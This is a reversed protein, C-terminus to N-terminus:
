WWFIARDRLFSLVRLVCAVRDMADTRLELDPSPPEEYPAQVGTFGALRGARAERYHGKVDRRECEGLPCHVWVEAFREEGVIWRARTRMAQLPSVVACLVIVEVEVLLKAVEAVRRCHELRDEICYGLDKSLTHRLWDGDLITVRAGLATLLAGTVRAITTKGACPLGTLWLCYGATHSM